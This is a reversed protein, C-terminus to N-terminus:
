DRRRGWRMGLGQVGGGRAGGSGCAGHRCADTRPGPAAAFSVPDTRGPGELGAGRESPDAEGLALPLLLVPRASRVAVLPRLPGAFRGWGARREPEPEPDPDGVAGEPGAARGAEGPLNRVTVGGAGSSCVFARRGSGKEGGGRGRGSDSRPPHHRGGARDSSFTGVPRM